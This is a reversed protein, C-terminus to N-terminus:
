WWGTSCRSWSTWSAPVDKDESVALVAILTRFAFAETVAAVSAAMGAPNHAADVIVVPSRRLVELRGPSTVTAFAERVLDEGLPEGGPGGRRVGRGRGARLGREHAQYAGFLPLFMDDYEGALGRLTLPRGASPSSM